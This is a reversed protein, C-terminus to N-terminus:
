VHARGIELYARSVLDVMREYGADSAALLVIAPLKALGQQGNRKEGEVADEMDISVQCGIIPQLGEGIAKQSFELAIFLNNTDTIAIAPQSDSAAKALIKKLPLAGELLSYASHVRLHVFEPSSGLSGGERGDAEAMILGEAHGFSDAGNDANRDTFDLVVGRPM